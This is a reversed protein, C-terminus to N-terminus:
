VASRGGENMLRNGDITYSSDHEGEFDAYFGVHRKWRGIALAANLMNLDAVQINHVYDNDVDAKVLPLSRRATARDEPTSTTTRLIGTLAGNSVEVGMGVDIFPVDDVELRDVILRRADADDVCVFVFDLDGLKGVNDEDIFFPHRIIGKHMEGYLDAFYDVKLTNLRERPVAGPARFASHQHMRDADYLHIESVPTKALSDLVYGGTGGLGVIGVKWGRLKDTAQGIGVRSTATDLYQFPSTDDEDLQLPFTRATAGPELSQAPGELMAVYATVKAHYDPYGEPPKSSFTHDIELGEALVQHGTANIIKTLPAGHQDCPVEGVFMAVHTDPAVTEDGSLALTSVLVGRRVQRHADVYPVDHVLLYAPDTRIEVNYGEDRLLQLDASRSTPTSSM